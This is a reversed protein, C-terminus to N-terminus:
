GSAVSMQRRYRKTTYPKGGDGKKSRKAPPDESPGAESAPAKNKRGRCALNDLFEQGVVASVPIAHEVVEPNTGAPRLDVLFLKYPFRRVFNMLHLSRATEVPIM